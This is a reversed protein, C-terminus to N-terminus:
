CPRNHKGYKRHACRGKKYSLKQVFLQKKLKTWQIRDRLMKHLSPFYFLYQAVLLLLETYVGIGLLEDRRLSLVQVFLFLLHLAPRQGPFLADSNAGLKWM